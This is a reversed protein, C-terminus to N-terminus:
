LNYDALYQSYVSKVIERSTEPSTGWANALDNLTGDMANKDGAKAKELASAAKKFNFGLQASVDELDAQTRARTKGIKAWDNMTRAIKVGVDASLLYREAFERGAGQINKEEQKAVDAIIDLDAEEGSNNLARGWDDYLINDPSLWAWGLYYQTYGFTDTYEWFAYELYYSSQYYPDEVDIIKDGNSYYNCGATPTGTACHYGYVDYWLPAYVYEKQKCASMTMAVAALAILTLIRIKQKRNEKKM